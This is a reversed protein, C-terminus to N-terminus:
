GAIATSFPISTRCEHVAAKHLLHGYIFLAADAVTM